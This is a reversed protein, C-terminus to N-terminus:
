NARIDPGDVEVVHVALPSPNQSFRLSAALGKGGREAWMKEGFVGLLIKEM